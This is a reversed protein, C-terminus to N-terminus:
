PWSVYLDYFWSRMHKTASSQFCFTESVCQLHLLPSSAAESSAQFLTVLSTVMHRSIGVRALWQSCLIQLRSNFIIAKNLNIQQTLQLM